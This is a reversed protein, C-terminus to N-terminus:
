QRDALYKTKLKQFDINCNKNEHIKYFKFLSILLDIDTTKEKRFQNLMTEFIKLESFAIDLETVKNDDIISM